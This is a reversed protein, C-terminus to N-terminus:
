VVSKRDREFRGFFAGAEPAIPDGGGNRLRWIEYQGSSAPELSVGTEAPTAAVAPVPARPPRALVAEHPPPASGPACAALALVLVRAWSLHRM